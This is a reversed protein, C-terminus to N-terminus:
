GSKMDISSATITVSQGAADLTFAVKSTITFASDTMQIENDTADKLSIGSDSLVVSNQKSGDIFQTIAIGQADLAIVNRKEDDLRCVILVLEDGDKDELQITHGKSTKIIKRTPPATVETETGDPGNSIPLETDGNSKGFLSGVWIPREIDGGEFEVWVRAGIEPVFLGGQNPAGGFAVCPWAWGTVVEDGLVQPVRVQLRGLKEPDDNAVVLGRYKGYISRDVKRVLRTLTQEDSPM